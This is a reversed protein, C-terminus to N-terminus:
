EFNKRLMPDKGERILDSLQDDSFSEYQRLLTFIRNQINLQSMSIIIRFIYYSGLYLSKLCAITAYARLM